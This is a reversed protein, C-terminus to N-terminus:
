LRCEKFQNRCKLWCLSNNESQMCNDHCDKLLRGTTEKCEEYKAAREKGEKMVDKGYRNEFEEQETEKEQEVERRNKEQLEDYNKIRERIDPNRSEHLREAIDCSM